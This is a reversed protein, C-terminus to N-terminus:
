KKWDLKGAKFKGKEEMKQDYTCTNMTCNYFRVKILRGCLYDVYCDGTYKEAERENFSPPTISNGYFSFTTFSNEWLTRLVEVRNLGSIDILYDLMELNEQPQNKPLIDGFKISLVM